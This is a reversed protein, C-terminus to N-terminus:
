AQKKREGPARATPAVAAATEFRYRGSTRGLGSFWGGVQSRVVEIAREVWVSLPRSVRGSPLGGLRNCRKADRDWGREMERALDLWLVELM